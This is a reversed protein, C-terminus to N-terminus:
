SQQPDEDVDDIIIGEIIDDCNLDEKSPRADVDGVEGSASMEHYKQLVDKPVLDIFLKAGVLLITLDDLQGLGPVVDPLFDFPFILYAAAAIPLLKLYIPVQPDMFLRVVLKAQQWLEGFFGPDNKSLSKNNV